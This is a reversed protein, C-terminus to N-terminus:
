GDDDGNNHRWQSNIIARYQHGVHDYRDSHVADIACHRDDIANSQCWEHNDCGADDYINNNNNNDNHAPDSRVHSQSAAANARQDAAGTDARADTASANAYGITRNQL